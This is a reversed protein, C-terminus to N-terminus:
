EKFGTTDVVGLALGNTQYVEQNGPVLLIDLMVDSPHWINDLLWVACKSFVLGIIDISYQQLTLVM